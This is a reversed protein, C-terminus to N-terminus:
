SKIARLKTYHNEGWGNSALCRWNCDRYQDYDSMSTAIQKNLEVSEKELFYYFVSPLIRTHGPDGWAWIKNWEPVVIHMIGNPKIIRWYENFESFFFKYDGQSGLHELIQYAHIEDFTDDEFPLPHNNLDWVIVGPEPLLDVYTPNKFKGDGGLISYNTKMRPTGGLILERFEESM